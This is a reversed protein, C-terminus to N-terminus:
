DGVKCEQNAPVPGVQVLSLPSCYFPGTVYENDSYGCGTFASIWSSLPCASASNQQALPEGVSVEYIMDRLTMPYFRACIATPPQLSNDHCSAYANGDYQYFMANGAFIDTGCEPNVIGPYPTYYSVFSSPWFNSTELQIQSVLSANIISSNIHLALNDKIVPDSILDYLPAVTYFLLAPASGISNIWQAYQSFNFASFNGGLVAFESISHMDFEILSQASSSTVREGLKFLDFVASASESISSDTNESFFVQDVWSRMSTRAGLSVSTIYHTGFAQVFAQYAYQAPLSPWSANFQADTNGADLDFYPIEAQLLEVTEETVSLVSQWHEWVATTSLTDFSFSFLGPIGISLGAKSASYSAYDQASHFVNSVQERTGTSRVVVQDPVSFTQNNFLGDNQFEAGRSYSYYIVRLGTQQGTILNVSAGLKDL